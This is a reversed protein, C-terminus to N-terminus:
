ILNLNKVIITFYANSNTLLENYFILDRDLNKFKIEIQKDIQDIDKILTVIKKAAKLNNIHSAM